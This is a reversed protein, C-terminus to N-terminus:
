FTSPTSAEQEANVGQAAMDCMDAPILRLTMWTGVSALFRYDRKVVPVEAGTQHVRSSVGKYVLDLAYRSVVSAQEVAPVDAQQCQGGSGDEVGAGLIVESIRSKRKREM